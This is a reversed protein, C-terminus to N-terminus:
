EEQERREERMQHLTKIVGAPKLWTSGFDQAAVRRLEAYQEDARLRALQSRDPAHAPRRHNPDQQNPPNNDQSPPPHSPPNRPSTYWM